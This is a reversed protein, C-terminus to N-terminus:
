LGSPLVIQPPGSVKPDQSSSICPPATGQPTYRLPEGMRDVVHATKNQEMSWAMFNWNVVSGFTVSGFVVKFKQDGQKWRGVASIVPVAARM